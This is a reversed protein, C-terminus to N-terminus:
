ENLGERIDDILPYGPSLREAEELHREAEETNGMDLHLNAWALNIYLNEHETSGHADEMISVAEESKNTLALVAALELRPWINDPNVRLSERLYEEAESFNEQMLKISGLDLLATSLLEPEEPDADVIELLIAEAEEFKDQHRKAVSLNLKTWNDPTLNLSERLYEEAEIYNANQNHISGLDRLARSLLETDQPESEIIDRMINEAEDLRNDDMMLVGLHYLSDLDDPYRNVLEQQHHIAAVFNGMDTYRQVADHIEESNMASLGPFRPEEPARYDDIRTIFVVLVIVTVLGISILILNSKKM